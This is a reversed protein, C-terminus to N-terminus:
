KINSLEILNDDPDYCYISTLPAVAGTRQCPGLIVHVGKAELEATHASGM